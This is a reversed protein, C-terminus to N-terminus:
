IGWCAPNIGEGTNEPKENEAKMLELGRELALLICHHYEPYITKLNKVLEQCTWLLELQRENMKQM